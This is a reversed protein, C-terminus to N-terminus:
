PSSGAPRAPMVSDLYEAIREGLASLSGGSVDIYRAVRSLELRIPRLHQRAHATLEPQGERLRGRPRAPIRGGRLLDTERRLIALAAVFEAEALESQAEEILTVIGAEVAPAPRWSNRTDRAVASRAWISSGTSRVPNQTRLEAVHVEAEEPPDPSSMHPLTVGGRDM